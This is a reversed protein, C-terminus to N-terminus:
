YTYSLTLEFSLSGSNVTLTTPFHNTSSYISFNISGMSDNADTPSDDDWLEINMQTTLDTVDYSSVGTLSYSSGTTANNTTGTTILTSTGQKLVALIDPNASSGPFLDWTSSGDLAPFNTVKIGTITVKTPTVQTGCDVGTYGVPCSCTGDVCVGGNLCNSHKCPDYPIPDSTVKKCGAAFFLSISSLAIFLTKKM